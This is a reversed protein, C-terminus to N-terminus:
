SQRSTSAPSSSHPEEDSAHSTYSQNRTIERNGYCSMMAHLTSRLRVPYVINDADDLLFRLERKLRIGPNKVVQRRPSSLHSSKAEKVETQEIILRQKPIGRRGPSTTKAKLISVLQPSEPPEAITGRDKPPKRGFHLRRRVKSVSARNIVPPEDETKTPTFHGNRRGAEHRRTNKRGVM